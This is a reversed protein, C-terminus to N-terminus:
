LHIRSDIAINSEARTRLSRSHLMHPTTLMVDTYSDETYGQIVVENSHNGENHAYKEIQKRGITYLTNMCYEIPIM